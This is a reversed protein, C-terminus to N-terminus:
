TGLVDRVIRSGLTALVCESVERWARVEKPLAPEAARIAETVTADLNVVGEFQLWALAESFRKRVPEFAAWVAADTEYLRASLRSLNELWERLPTDSELLPNVPQITEHERSNQELFQPPGVAKREGTRPRYVGTARRM